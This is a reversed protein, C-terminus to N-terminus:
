KFLRTLFGEKKPGKGDSYTLSDIRGEVSAEGDEVSLKIMKLDSGKIQLRGCGTYLVAEKEGFSETDTIGTLYLRKRSECIINSQTDPRETNM